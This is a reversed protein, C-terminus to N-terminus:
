IAIVRGPPSAIEVRSAFDNFVEKGRELSEITGHNCIILDLVGGNREVLQSTMNLSDALTNHSGLGIHHITARIAVNKYENKRDRDWFTIRRQKSHGRYKPYRQCIERIRYATTGEFLYNTTIFIYNNSPLGAQYYDIIPGGEGVGSTALVVWSENSEILERRHSPGEVPMIGSEQGLVPFPIDQDSWRTKSIIGCIKIALPSDIYCPIGARYLTAAVNQIKGQAFGLLVIKKKKKLGQRVVKVLREQRESYSERSEETDASAYTFDTSLLARPFPVDSPWDAFCAGRVTPQEHVCWDGTLLGYGGDSLPVLYSCSGFLHGNPIAYIHYGPFIEVRGPKEIVSMRNQIKAWDFVSFRPSHRMSDFWVARTVEACQPTCYLKAEPDLLGTSELEPLVGIHDTHSHSVLIAHIVTGKEKLAKVIEEDIGTMKSEGTETREVGLGSDYLINKGRAEILLCQGGIVKPDLSGGLVTVKDTM